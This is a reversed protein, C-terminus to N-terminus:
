VNGEKETGWWGYNFSPLYPKTAYPIDEINDLGVLRTENCKECQFYFQRDIIAVSVLEDCEKCYILEHVEDCLNQPIGKVAKEGLETLRYATIYGYQSTSVRLISIMRLNLLDEIDDKGERSVNLWQRTGDLMPVSWPAYDYDVFVGTIIGQYIIAMIPLEKVWVPRDEEGERTYEDVVYLLKMQDKTLESEM